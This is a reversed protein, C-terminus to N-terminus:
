NHLKKQLYLKDGKILMKTLAAAVHMCKIALCCLLSQVACEIVANGTGHMTVLASVYYSICFIAFINIGTEM